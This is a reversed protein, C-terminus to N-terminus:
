DRGRYLALFSIGAGVVITLVGYAQSGAKSVHVSKDGGLSPARVRAGASDPIMTFDTPYAIMWVGFIIFGLGAIAAGIDAKTYRKMSGVFFLQAV